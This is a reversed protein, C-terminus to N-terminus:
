KTLASEFREIISKSFADMEPNFTQHNLKLELLSADKVDLGGSQVLEVSKKLLEDRTWEKSGQAKAFKQGSAISIRSLIPMPTLGMKTVVDSMSKQMEATKITLSGQAKMMKKVQKLSKRLRQSEGLSAAM